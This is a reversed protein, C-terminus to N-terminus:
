NKPLLARRRVKKNDRLAANDHRLLQSVRHRVDRWVSQGERMLQRLTWPRATEGIDPIRNPLLGAWVLEDLNLVYDGIAVGVIRSAPAGNGFVGFPLNQIPFPSLPDVDIFSRLSPDNPNDTM